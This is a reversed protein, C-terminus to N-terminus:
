STRGVERRRLWESAPATSVGHIVVSLTIALTAHVFLDHNGTLREALTAYFLASVGIPGFWGLFVTEPVSHVRRLLPRLALLAVARRLLLAVLLVVPAAWGLASWEGFPLALGLLIFIPLLFFRNVVDEVRDEEDEDQQPIVQGFVAAAVFVALVADTGLLKGAGLLLLAFPLLFGLYSNDEMLGKDKAVLFIRALVYGVLAGFLAAGLIERLFVSLLLERGATEPSTTLLVPLLVFLYGLGDNLGSESSIDYRVRSPIKAKALSGTVIPTTVVPDTPTIIAGLTLAVLFPVGLLAWLIGTAVAFMVLMGLVISSVVWRRNRRWYGHPLRLAVGALGVALTIRTAQELLEGTPVGFDEIRVVGLVAPGLLVGTALALVPGPLSIRQLLSSLLALM